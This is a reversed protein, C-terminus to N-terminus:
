SKLSLSQFRIDQCEETQVNYTFNVRYFPRTFYEYYVYDGDSEENYFSEISTILDKNKEYEKYPIKLKIVSNRINFLADIGINGDNILKVSEIELDELGDFTSADSCEFLKFIDKYDSSNLAIDFIANDAKSLYKLGEKELFDEFYEYTFDELEYEENPFTIGASKFISLISDSSQKPFKVKYNGNEDFRASGILRVGSNEMTTQICAFNNPWYNEPWPAYVESLLSTWVLSVYTPGKFDHYGELSSSVVGVIRGEANFVPGGSMGGLADMAVEICPGNIHSGRGQLYQETVLGSSIFFSITPVGDNEVERYGTAWLRENIKPISVELPAFIYDDNDDFKSFPSCSLIGVDCYKPIPKQFPLIEISKKQQAHFEESIWIRMSDKNAFTYLLANKEKIEEIVHTATLCLGPAIMVGSGIIKQKVNDIFGIAVILGGLAWLSQESIIDIASFEPCGWRCPRDISKKEPFEFKAHVSKKM